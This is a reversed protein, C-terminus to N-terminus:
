MSYVPLQPEVTRTWVWGVVYQVCMFVLSPGIGIGFIWYQSLCCHYRYTCATNVHKLVHAQM